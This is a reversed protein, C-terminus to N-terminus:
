PSREGGGLRAQLGAVEFARELEQRQGFARRWVLALRRLHLQEPTLDRESRAQALAGRGQKQSSRLAELSEVGLKGALGVEVGPSGRQEGTPQGGGAAQDLDGEGGGRSWRRAARETWGIQQESTEGREDRFSMRRRRAQQPLCRGRKCVFSRRGLLVEAPP